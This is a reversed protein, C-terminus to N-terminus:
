YGQWEGPTLDLEERWIVPWGRTSYLRVDVPLPHTEEPLIMWLVDVWKKGTFEPLVKHEIHAGNASPKRPSIDVVYGGEASSPGLVYKKWQGSRLVTKFYIYPPQLGRDPQQAAAPGPAAGALTLAILLIAIFSFIRKANM